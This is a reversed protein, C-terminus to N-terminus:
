AGVCGQWRADGVGGTRGARPTRQAAESYELGYHRYLQAEESQSLEGDPDVRRRTRSRAKDYPVRLPDEATANRLPM